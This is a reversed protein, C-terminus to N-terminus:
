KVVKGAVAPGPGRILFSGFVSSFFIRESVQLRRTGRFKLGTDRKAEHQSQGHM